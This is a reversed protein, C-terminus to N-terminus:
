NEKKATELFDRIGQVIKDAVQQQFGEDLIKM